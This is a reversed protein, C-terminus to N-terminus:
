RDKIEVGPIRYDQFRTESLSYRNGLPCV